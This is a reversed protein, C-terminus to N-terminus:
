DRVNQPIMDYTRLENGFTIPEVGWGREWISNRPVVNMFVVRALFNNCDLFEHPQNSLGIMHYRAIDLKPEVDDRTSGATDARQSDRQLDFNIDGSLSHGCQQDIEHIDRGYRNKKALNTCTHMTVCWLCQCFRCRPKRTKSGSTERRSASRRAEPLKSICTSM